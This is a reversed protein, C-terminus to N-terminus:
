HLVLRLSDQSQTRDLTNGEALGRLFNITTIASAGTGIVMSTKGIFSAPELGVNPIKQRIRGLNVLAREGLAPIGGFGSWNANGWVGTCDVVKDSIVISEENKIANNVLIRFPACKRKEKGGIDDKKLLNGAVM